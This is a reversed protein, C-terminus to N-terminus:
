AAMPEESLIACSMSLHCPFLYLFVFSVLDTPSIKVVDVAWGM